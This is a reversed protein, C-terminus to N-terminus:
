DKYTEYRLMRFVSKRNIKGGAYVAATRTVEAMTQGSAYLRRLHGVDDMSLKRGAPHGAVARDQANDGDLGPYIHDPNCCCNCDCSHLAHLPGLLQGTVLEYALRHVAVIVKGVRFHGYGDSQKGGMWPWCGKPGASKDVRSWFKDELAKDM